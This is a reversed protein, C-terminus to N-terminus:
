PYSRKDKNESTEETTQDTEANNALFGCISKFFEFISRLFFGM